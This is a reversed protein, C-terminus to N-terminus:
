TRPDMGDSSWLTVDKSSRSDGYGFQSIADTLRKDALPTEPNKRHDRVQLRKRCTDSCFRAHKRKGNLSVGCGYCTHAKHDIGDRCKQSCWVGQQGLITWMVVGLVRTCRDCADTVYIGHAQLLLRSQEESLKM